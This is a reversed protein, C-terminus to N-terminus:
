RGATAAGAGGRPLGPAGAGAGREPPVPAASGAGVEPLVPTDSGARVEPLVPTDSGARVEPLVPTDSGARVWILGGETWAPRSAGAVIIAANTTRLATKIMTAYTVSSSRLNAARICDRM